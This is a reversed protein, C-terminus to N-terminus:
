MERAPIPSKLLYTDFRGPTKIISSVEADGRTDHDVERVHNVLVMIYSRFNEERFKPSKQRTISCSQTDCVVM